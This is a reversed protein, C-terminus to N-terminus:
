VIRSQQRYLDAIDESSTADEMQKDTRKHEFRPFRLSIGKSEHVLGLAARHVPSITLDAGRMEWVECPEFWVSPRELTQVHAPKHKLLRGDRYFATMEKYFEDTFGSMCRCLSQLYGSEPDYVAMLIPSFWDAKRGQGRWAAIPVLDYTDGASGGGDSPLYDKKLKRWTDARKGPTYTSAFTKVMLGECCERCSQLLYATIEELVPSRPSAADTHQPPPTAGSIPVSTQTDQPNDESRQRKRCPGAAHTSDTIDMADVATDATDTCTHTEHRKAGSGDLKNGGDSRCSATESAGHLRLVPDADLDDRAIVLRQAFAVKGPLPRFMTELRERRQRYPVSLMSTGDISLVDFLFFCVDAQGTAAVPGASTGDRKRTSLTQFALLRTVAGSSPNREVAVVEGDVVAELPTDGTYSQELAAFVEPFRLTCDVLDRSFSLRVGDRGFHLQLRQGDYKYEAAFGTNDQQLLDVIVQQISAGPKALMPKIPIGPRPGKPLAENALLARVIAELDPVCNYAARAEDAVAVLVKSTAKSAAAKGRKPAKARATLRAVPDNGKHHLHCAIAVAGLLTALSMGTRMNNILCRVLYRIECGRAARLVRLLTARKRQESGQGEEKGVTRMVAAVGGITLPEPTWLVAQRRRLKMAADGLDGHYARRLEDASCGTAARLASSVIAGGVGEVDMGAALGLTDLVSGPDHALLTRVANVMVREKVTRKTTGCVLELANALFLFPAKCAPSGADGPHTSRPAPWDQRSADPDFDAYDIDLQACSATTASTATAAATTIAAAGGFALMARPRSNGTPTTTTGKDTATHKREAKPLDHPKATSKPTTVTTLTTSATPDLAATGKSNGAGNSSRVLQEAGGVPSASDPLPQPQDHTQNHPQYQQRQRQFMRDLRQQGPPQGGAKRKGPSRSARKNERKHGGVSGTNSGMTVFSTGMTVPSTNIAVSVEKSDRGGSAAEGEDDDIIVIDCSTPQVHTSRSSATFSQTSRAEEEAATADTPLPTVTTPKDGVGKGNHFGRDHGSQQTDRRSNSNFGSFRDFYLAVATDTDNGCERVCASALQEDVGPGLLSCLVAVAAAGTTGGCGGAVGEGSM